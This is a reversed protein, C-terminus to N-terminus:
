DALVLNMDTTMNKALVIDCSIGTSPKTNNYNNMLLPADLGAIKTVIGCQCSRTENQLINEM